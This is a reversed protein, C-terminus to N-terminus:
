EIVSVVVDGVALAITVNRISANKVENRADILGAPEEADETNIM